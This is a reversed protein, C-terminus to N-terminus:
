DYLRLNTTDKESVINSLFSEIVYIIDRTFCMKDTKIDTGDIAISMGDTAIDTGDIAIDTGDTAIDTGDIAISMGDTAIDM